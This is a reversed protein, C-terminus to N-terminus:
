NPRFVRSFFLCKRSKKSRKKCFILFKKKKRLIAKFDNLFSKLAFFFKKQIKKKKKKPGFKTKLKKRFKQVQIKRDSFTWKRTVNVSQRKKKKKLNESSRGM